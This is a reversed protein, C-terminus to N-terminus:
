ILPSYKKKYIKPIYFERNYVVNDFTPDETLDAIWESVYFDFEAKTCKMLKPNYNLSELEAIADQTNDSSAIYRYM